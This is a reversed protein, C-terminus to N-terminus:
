KDSLTCQQWYTATWHGTALVNFLLRKVFFFFFFFFLDFDSGLLGSDTVKGGDESWFLYLDGSAFGIVFHSTDRSAWCV